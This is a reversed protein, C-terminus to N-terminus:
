ILGLEHARAIAETRSQVQLKDFIKRNHGKITDLALFLREGIERNSLGQAILKLIELERQSLAEILPASEILRRAPPLSTKDESKQKEAEFAALLKAVYDPMVGHSATELLLQAMPIGEDVFLRIFGGPEALTLAEVLLETAKDMESHAYQAVAQLVIAKLREDAWGKAEMRQRFPELVALAASPDNQAILVRAQSLPLEHAQALQGAASLDGQRLLVLVQAAAVEPIRQVFNNQRVSQETEALMTAAESVEGRALKLRALFVECIIFRDITRDYLRAQQLSQQAHMEAADLEDWEYYIRALGIDEESANLKGQESLLQLSHRYTEAAQYLQNESEQLEGLGNSTLVTYYISGSALRIAETYAERAAARKGQLKYAFGLSWTARSRFHLNDPHLYELARGAQIITVEPHYRIHALTARVAAIQGILDSTKEDPEAGQLTASVAAEAAHLKEEVGTAQGSMLASTASRVWLWPRADMVSRPLAELWNLTTTAVDRFHLPVKGEAMLREAREIDNAATAHQFAEIMLDNDEFWVSARIHYEAPGAEENGLSASQQLRQRLLEAFLHHYRYWRRENDLPVIFLNIHELRELIEQGSTSPDLLVADCLSGCMRDLISTRLLFAQINEPQRGLVEEMLYDLVFHHSGTFSQIFGATDKHGQMSLAALQLGAIWGETRTELAAIEEASLNLGMVQNLFDAAEAPTFRLDAARLESLQGRVRLRALPLHPDERTVIVLHMQAPLHDLLFTLVEDVSTSVGVPKSDIVHFDDLVLVFNDQVTAIENILTTLISEISPSQPSQLAGLLGAGIEANITQSAAIFYTLFRSPDNDREDLSLWAVPRGFGACWESVLTTKGFGASASILMLRCSSSLCENLREVLRPRLVIKSRPPPVFLKTALITTAM